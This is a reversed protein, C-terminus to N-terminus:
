ILPTFLPITAMKVSVVCHVLGTSCNLKGCMFDDLESLSRPIVTYPSNTKFSTFICRGVETVHKDKNYTLCNNDLISVNTEINCQLIQNPAKGCQCEGNDCYVWPSCFDLFSECDGALSPLTAATTNTGEKSCSIEVPVTIFALFLFIGCKSSPSM